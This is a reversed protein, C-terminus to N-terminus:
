ESKNCTWHRGKLLCYKSRYLFSCKTSEQNCKVFGLKVATVFNVIPNRIFKYWLNSVSPCTKECKNYCYEFDKRHRCFVFNWRQKRIIMYPKM